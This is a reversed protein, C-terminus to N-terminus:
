KLYEDIESKVDKDIREIAFGAHVIVFDGESVDGVLSANIDKEIGDFDVIARQGNISIIKGPIALCM